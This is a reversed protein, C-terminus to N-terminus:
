PYNDTRPREIGIIFVQHHGKEKALEALGEAKCLDNGTMDHAQLTHIILNALQSTCDAYTMGFIGWVLILVLVLGILLSSIEKVNYARTVTAILFFIAVLILLLWTVIRAPIGLGIRGVVRTSAGVQELLGTVRISVRKADYRQTSYGTAHLSLFVQDTDSCESLRILTIARSAAFVGKGKSFLFRRAAVLQQLRHVCEASSHTSVFKITKTM